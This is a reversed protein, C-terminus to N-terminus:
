LFLHQQSERLRWTQQLGKQGVQPTAAKEVWVWSDLLHVCMWCMSYVSRIESWKLWNSQKPM